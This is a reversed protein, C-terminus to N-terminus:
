TTRYTDSELLATLANAQPLPSSLASSPVTATCQTYSRAPPHILAAPTGQMSSPKLRVWPRPCSLCHCESPERPRQHLLPARCPPRSQTVSPVPLVPLDLNPLPLPYPPASGSDQSPDALAVHSSGILAQAFAWCGAPRVHSDNLRPKTYRRTRRTAALQKCVKRSTTTSRVPSRCALAFPSPSCYLVTKV